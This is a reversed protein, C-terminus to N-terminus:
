QQVWQGNQLILTVPKGTRQDIGQKTVAATTRAPADPIGNPGAQTQLAQIALERNRKKQDLVAPADGPQPIYMKNATAIESDSITAGSEKRLVATIFNRTVADYKQGAESRASNLGAWDAAQDKRAGWGTPDYEPGKEGPAMMSEITSNADMARTGFGAANGQSETLAKPQDAPGGPIPQLGGNGWQYGSPATPPKRADIAADYDKLRKSSSEDIDSKFQWENRKQEATADKEAQDAANFLAAYDLAGGGSLLDAMHHDGHQRIGNAFNNVYSQWQDKPLKRLAPALVKAVGVLDETRQRIARAKKDELATMEKHRILQDDANRPAMNQYAWALTQEPTADPNMQHFQQLASDDQTDRIANGVKQGNNYATALDFTRFAQPDIQALQFTM